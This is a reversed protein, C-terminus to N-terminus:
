GRRDYDVTVVGRLSTVVVRYGGFAYTVRQGRPGVSVQPQCGPPVCIPVYVPDCRGSRPTPNPIEVIETVGGPWKDHPSKVRVNPYLNVLQGGVMPLTTAPYSEIVQPAPMAYPVSPGPVIPGAGPLPTPHGLQPEPTPQLQSVTPPALAYDAPPVFLPEAAIGVTGVALLSAISYLSKM